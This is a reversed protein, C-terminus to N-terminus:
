RSAVYTHSLNLIWKEDNLIKYIDFLNQNTDILDIFENIAIKVYRYATRESVDFIEILKETSYKFQMMLILIKRSRLSCKNVIIDLFVKLNILYKKRQMLDIIKNSLCETNFNVSCIGFNTAYRNVFGDITKCTNELYSYSYLLSLAKDKELM